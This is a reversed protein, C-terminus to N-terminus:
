SICKITWLLHQPSKCLVFIITRDRAIYRNRFISIWSEFLKETKNKCLKKWFMEFTYNKKDYYLKRHMPKHTLAFKYQSTSSRLLRWKHFLEVWQMALKIRLNSKAELRFGWVRWDHTRTGRHRRWQRVTLILSLTLSM